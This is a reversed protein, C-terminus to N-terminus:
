REAWAGPIKIGRASFAETLAQQLTACSYIGNIDAEMAVLTEAMEASIGVLVPRSGVLRAAKLLKIFEGVAQAGGNKVDSLDFILERVKRERAEELIKRVGASRHAGDFYGGMTVVMIGEWPYIMVPRAPKRMETEIKKLKKQLAGTIQKQDKLARVKQEAIFIRIKMRTIDIPKVIYDDAGAKLAIEVDSIQDQSTSIIIVTSESEPIARIQRCLEVGTMGPLMWDLVALSHGGKQYAEWGDEANECETIEYGIQELIARLLRRTSNDDEVLLARM